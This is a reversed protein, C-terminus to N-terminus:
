FRLEEKSFVPVQRKDPVIKEMLKGRTMRISQDLASSFNGEYYDEAKKIYREAFSHARKSRIKGPTGETVADWLNCIKDANKVVRAIPDELIRSVYKAEDAGEPRTLLKVAVLIEEGFFELEVEDTDTDELVDHLMAATQYELGYGAYRVLEAVAIPHYIYPTVGDKRTQFRHKVSALSIAAAFREYAREDDKM